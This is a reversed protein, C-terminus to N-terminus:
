ALGHKVRHAEQFARTQMERLRSIARDVAFGSEQLSAVAAAFVGKISQQESTPDTSEWTFSSIRRRDDWGKSVQPPSKLGTSGSSDSGQRWISMDQEGHERARQIESALVSSANMNDMPTGQFEAPSLEGHESSFAAERAQKREEISTKIRSIAGLVGSSSPSSDGDGCGAMGKGVERLGIDKLEALNGLVAEPPGAMSCILRTHHEYCCDILLTLRRAENHQDVSLCPVDDVLITHFRTCIANYDDAALHQNCLDEFSFRAMSGCNSVQPVNLYRGYAVEARGPGADAAASGTLTELWNDVFRRDSPWCFVGADPSNEYHLSRYDTRSQMHLVKCNAHLLDLFPPLYVHRNLGDTYLDEPARNSTAIVTVGRRFLANFLPLLICCDQITTVAFEDFCLVDVGDAIREGAREVGLGTALGKEDEKKIEHLLRQIDYLFEHFHKRQVRLNRHGQLSTFFLDMSMSKGCGVSGHLYLGRATRRSVGFYIATLIELVRRQEPDDRLQGREILAEYLALPGKSQAVASCDQEVHFKLKSPESISVATVQSRRGPAVCPTVEVCCPVGGPNLAARLWSPRRLVSRRIALM